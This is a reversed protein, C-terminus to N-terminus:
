HDHDASNPTGLSMTMPIKSAGDPQAVVPNETAQPAAAATPSPSPDASPAPSLAPTPSPHRIAFFRRSSPQILLLCALLLASLMGIEAVLHFVYTRPILFKWAEAAPPSLQAPDVGSLAFDTDIVMMVGAALLMAFPAVLASRFGRHLFFVAPILFVGAAGLWRVISLDLLYSIQWEPYIFWVHFLPGLRDSDNIVALVRPIGNPLMQIARSLYRTVVIGLLSALVLLANAIKVAVPAPPFRNVM